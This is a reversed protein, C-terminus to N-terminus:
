AKSWPWRKKTKLSNEGDLAALERLLEEQRETLQTPTQVVIHIIQDGRGNGRMHPVGCGRLIFQENTQTGRPISLNKSGYLSPVEM